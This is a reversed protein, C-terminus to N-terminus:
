FGGRRSQLPLELAKVLRGPQEEVAERVSPTTNAGLECGM